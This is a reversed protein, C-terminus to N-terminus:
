DPITNVDQAPYYRGGGKEALQRLMDGAGQGAGVTSLTINQADMENLLANFDAQRTWGDSILIIHKLKADTQELETVAAQLGAHLNTNGEPNVPKLDAELRGQGLNGMPQMAVLDHASEDFGVVGVQDTS